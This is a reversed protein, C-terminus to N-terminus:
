LKKWRGSNIRQIKQYFKLPHITIIEVRDDFEDYCIVMDRTKEKYKINKIAVQHKTVNDFYKENSTLYIDKVLKESINRLKIKLKLHETYKIAKM